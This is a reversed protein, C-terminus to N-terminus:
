YFKEVLCEIILIFYLNMNKLPFSIFLDFHKVAIIKDAANLPLTQASKFEVVKGAKGVM